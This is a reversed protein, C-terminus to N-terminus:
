SGSTAVHCGSADALPGVHGVPKGDAPNMIVTTSRTVRDMCDSSVSKSLARGDIWVDLRTQGTSSAGSDEVGLYVQLDPVYIRTGSKTEM